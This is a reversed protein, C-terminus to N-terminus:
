APVTLGFEEALGRLRGPLTGGNLHDHARQLRSLLLRHSQVVDVASMARYRAQIHEPEDEHVGAYQPLSTGEFADAEADTLFLGLACRIEVGELTRNHYTCFHGKVGLPNKEVVFHNWVINFIEQATLEGRRDMWPREM